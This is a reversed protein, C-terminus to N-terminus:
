QLVGEFNVSEGEALFAVETKLEKECLCKGYQDRMFGCTGCSLKKILRKNYARTQSAVEFLAKKQYLLDECKDSLVKLRTRLDKNINILDQKNRDTMKSKRKRPQHASHYYEHIPM